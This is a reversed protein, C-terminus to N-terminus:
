NRKKDPRREVERFLRKWKKLEQLRLHVDNKRAVYRLEKQLKCYSDFRDRALTGDVLAQQVACGPETEHTCDRFRCERALSEIEPFATDVSADGDGLQFERMGPTDILLGGGKLVILERRATTHRGRGDDERIAATQLREENLLRNILTSKGVGSSGVLVGTRHPKLAEQIADLGQGSLACAAIVPVSAAVGEVELITAALDACLDSKNVVIVPSAGSDWIAVLYRELRRLNLDQNFSTVVFAVDINAAIAQLKQGSGAATRFLASRRPLVEVITAGPEERAARLLVWDGVVPSELGEGEDHFKGSVQAIRDEGGLDVHYCTKEQIIVRAPVCGERAAFVATRSFESFGLQDLSM